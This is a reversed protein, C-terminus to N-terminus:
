IEDHRIIRELKYMQSINPAIKRDSYYDLLELMVDQYDCWEEYQDSSSYKDDCCSYECVIKMPNPILLAGGSPRTHFDLICGNDTHLICRKGRKKPDAVVNDDEVGRPRIYYIIDDAEYRFFTDIVFYGTDLISKMYDSDYIDIFDRPSFVCPYNKCCSGGCKHCLERDTSTEESYGDKGTLVRFLEIKKNKYEEATM